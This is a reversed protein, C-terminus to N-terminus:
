GIVPVGAPSSWVQPDRTVSRADRILAAVEYREMRATVDPLAV